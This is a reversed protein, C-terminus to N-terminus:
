TGGLISHKARIQEWKGLMDFGKEAGLETVSIRFSAFHPLNIGHTTTFCYYFDLTRVVTTNEIIRDYFHSSKM